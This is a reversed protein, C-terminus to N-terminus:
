RGCRRENQMPNGLVMPVTFTGIICILMRRM